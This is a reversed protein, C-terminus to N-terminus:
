PNVSPEANAPGDDNQRRAGRKAGNSVGSEVCFGFAGSTQRPEAFNDTPVSGKL